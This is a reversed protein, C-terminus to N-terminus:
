MTSGGPTEAKLSTRKGMELGASYRTLPPQVPEQYSFLYQIVVLLYLFFWNAQYVNKILLLSGLKVRSPLHLQMIKFNAVVVVGVAVVCVLYSSRESCCILGSLM